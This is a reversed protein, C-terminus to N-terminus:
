TQICRMASNSLASVWSSNSSNDSRVRLSIVSKIEHARRLSVPSKSSNGVNGLSEARPASDTLESCHGPRLLHGIPPSHKASRARSAAFSASTM